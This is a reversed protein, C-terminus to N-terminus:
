NVPHAYVWLIGGIEVKKDQGDRPMRQEAESLAAFGWWGPWPLVWSFVGQSDTRVVQTVYADSPAKKQGDQNFFEVEVTCDALPRGNKLVRGSFSNGAWLGDPRTLPVIEMALGVPQEWGEQRNLASVVTKSYHIIFKDEAPEFYPQPVMYLVYDGPKKIALSANWTTLGQIKMPKLSSLLDIKQGDLVYGAEQPRALELGQNEMPHWFRFQLNVQKPDHPGVLNREPIIMGFHASATTAALIGVLLMFALFIRKM